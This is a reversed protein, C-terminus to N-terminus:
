MALLCAWILLVGFQDLGAETAEMLNKGILAAAMSGVAFPGM